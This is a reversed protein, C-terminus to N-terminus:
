QHNATVSNRKKQQQRTLHIRLYYNKNKFKISSRLSLSISAQAVAQFNDRSIICEVNRMKELTENDFPWSFHEMKKGHAHNIKLSPLILEWRHIGNWAVCNIKKTKYNRRVIQM